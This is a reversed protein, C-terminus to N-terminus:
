RISYQDSVLPRAGHRGHGRIQRDRSRLGFNPELRPISRISSQRGHHVAPRRSSRDHRQLVHGWIQTQTGITNNSPDWVGVKFTTQSPLNGSGSVVLIKGNDMLATHVPNIPMLTPLTQWTGQVNAQGNAAPAHLALSALMAFAFSMVRVLSWSFQGGQRRVSASRKCVQVEFIFM